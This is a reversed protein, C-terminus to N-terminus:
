SKTYKVSFLWQLWQFKVEFVGLQNHVSIPYQKQKRFLWHCGCQLRHFHNTFKLKIKILKKCKFSYDGKYILSKIFCLRLFIPM